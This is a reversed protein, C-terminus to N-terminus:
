SPNSNSKFLQKAWSFFSSLKLYVAIGIKKYKPLYVRRSLIPYEQREIEDLIGKYVLAAVNVVYQSRSPLYKVGKRGRSYLKRARNIQKKLFSIFAKSPKKNHIEFNLDIEFEKLESQPLYVRGLNYDEKVDRLINTLQMAKGLDKAHSIINKSPNKHFLHTMMIGVTSAVYYCYKELASYDQYKKVDLDISVGKILDYFPYKPINNNIITKNLALLVKDDSYYDEGMKEISEKLKALEQSVLYRSSSNKDVIDDCRRCFAYLSAVELQQKRELFSTAFVFSKSKDALIEYAQKYGSNIKEAVTDESKCSDLIILIRM